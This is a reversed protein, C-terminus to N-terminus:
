VGKRSSIVPISGTVEEKGLFREVLQAVDANNHSRSVPSSGAVRLKPLQREVLQAVGASLVIELPFRSEFGRGEAQFASARGVSSSGCGRTPLSPNSGGFPYGLLNVTQGTQGSRYRGRKSVEFNIFFKKIGFDLNIKKTKFM